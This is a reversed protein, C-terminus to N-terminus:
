GELNPMYNRVSPILNDLTKVQINNKHVLKSLENALGEVPAFFSDNRLFNNGEWFDKPVFISEIDSFEFKFPDTRSVYRWEREFYVSYYNTPEYDTYQIPKIKMLEELHTLRGAENTIVQGLLQQKIFSNGHDLYIVPSISGTGNYRQVHIKRLVAEKKFSIGCFGYHHAHFPLSSEPMETFCSFIPLKYKALIDEPVNKPDNMEFKLEAYSKKLAQFNKLTDSDQFANEVSFDKNLYENLSVTSPHIRKNNLAVLLYKIDSTFHYLNNSFINGLHKSFVKGILEYTIEPTMGRKLNNRIKSQVGALVDRSEYPFSEEIKDLVVKDVMEDHYGAEPNSKYVSYLKLFCLEYKLYIREM